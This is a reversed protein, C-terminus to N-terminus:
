SSCTLDTCSTRSLTKQPHIHLIVHEAIPCSHLCSFHSYCRGQLQTPNKGTGLHIIEWHFGVSGCSDSTTWNYYMGQWTQNAVVETQPGKSPAVRLSFIRWCICVMYSGIVPGRVSFGRAPHEDKSLCANQQFSNFLVGSYFKLCVYNLM